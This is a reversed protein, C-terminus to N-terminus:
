KKYFSYDIRYRVSEYQKGKFVGPTKDIWDASIIYLGDKATTFYANGSTDTKLIDEPKGYPAFIVDTLVLPVGNKYLTLVYSDKRLHQVAMDLPLDVEPSIAPSNGVSYWARLYQIPRTVGLNHKSWDQVDRTDNIGTIAYVGKQAALYRGVWYENGQQMSLQHKGGDPATVFVNIDKMKDLSKGTMREGAPYDGFYLKVTLSDGKKGSGFTEIWYGHAGVWLPM